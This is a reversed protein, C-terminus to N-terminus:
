IGELAAKLSELPKIGTQGDFYALVRLCADVLASSPERVMKSGPKRGRRVPAANAKLWAGLAKSSDMPISAERDGIKCYIPQRLAEEHLDLCEGKYWSEWDPYRTSGTYNAFGSGAIESMIVSDSAM